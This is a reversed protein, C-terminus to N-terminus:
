KSIVLARFTLASLNVGNAVEAHTNLDIVLLKDNAEDYRLSYANVDQEIVALPTRRDKTIANFLAKFGPTGGTPYNGDGAFNIRDTFTPASPQVGVEDAITIVGIAM